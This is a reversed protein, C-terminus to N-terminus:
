SGAESENPFILYSSFFLFFFFPSRMSMIRSPPCQRAIQFFFSQGVTSKSLLIVDSLFFIFFFFPAFSNKNDGFFLQCMKLFSFLPADV